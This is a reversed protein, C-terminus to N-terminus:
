LTSQFSAGVGPMPDRQHDVVIEVAIARGEDGMEFARQGALYIRRVLEVAEGGGAARQEDAVIEGGGTGREAAVREFRPGGVEPAPAFQEGYAMGGADNREALDLGRKDGDRARTAGM